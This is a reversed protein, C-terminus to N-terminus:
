TTSSLPNLESVQWEKPLYQLDTPEDIDHVTALVHTKWGLQRTRNLTEKAVASTSWPMNDFLTANFKTMGLLAYGGDFTPLLCADHQHLAAAAASLTGVDIDPCDTGILLIAEGGLITREAVRAMRAGLDGDSQASWSLVGPLNLNQWVVANPEPAACVEVAGLNSTIATQVTHLLMRKALQAADEAGLAPILRTKAFGATPAKAMIVIRIPMM